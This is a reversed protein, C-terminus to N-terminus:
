LSGFWGLKSLSFMSLLASELGPKDIDFNDLCMGEWFASFPHPFFNM